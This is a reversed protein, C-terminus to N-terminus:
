AAAETAVVFPVLELDADGLRSQAPPALRDGDVHFLTLMVPMKDSSEREMLSTGGAVVEYSVHVKGEKTDAEWEGALTKLRSFAAAADITRGSKADSGHGATSGVLLAAALLYEIRM